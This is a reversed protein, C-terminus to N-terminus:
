RWSDPCKLVFGDAKRVERPLLSKAIVDRGITFYANAVKKLEKSARKPPFALVIRKKPFLQRIRRLPAVLDSDASILLASDFRDLFADSLMEVAINVDTMKENPVTDAHGCHLCQRPNLQYKGFFVTVLPLTEVAEIFTAQRKQKDPPQSVRATFYKVSEVIQGPRSLNQVLRELNLWYYRRWGSDKLGFYLNFGDIYAVVREL